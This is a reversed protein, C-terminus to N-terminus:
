AEQGRTLMHNLVPYEVRYAKPRIWSLAEFTRVLWSHSFSGLEYISVTSKWGLVPPMCLQQEPQSTGPSM